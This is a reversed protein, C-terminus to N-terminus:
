ADVGLHQAPEFDPHALDRDSIVDPSSPWPIKFRPDDWRVGRELAPSYVKNVLYFVESNPQLTLFGHACGSPVYMAQRNEASLEAGYSRGFTPSTPRLDLVVDWVVGAICRILKVEDAPALQYHMGRLTGTEASGSMNAQVFQTELGHSAFENVCFARAFFGRADGRRELEVVYAGSITTPQFIM